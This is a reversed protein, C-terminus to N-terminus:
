SSMAIHMNNNGTAASLVILLKLLLISLDNSRYCEEDNISCPISQLVQQLVVDLTLFPPFFTYLAHLCSLITNAFRELDMNCVLKTRQIETQIVSCHWQWQCSMWHSIFGPSVWTSLFVCVWKLIVESKNWRLNTILYDLSTESRGGASPGVNDSLRTM